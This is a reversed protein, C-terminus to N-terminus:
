DVSKAERLRKPLPRDSLPRHQWCMEHGDKVTRKCQKSPWRLGRGGHGSKTGPIHYPCRHEHAWLTVVPSRYEGGYGGCLGKIKGEADHADRGEGCYGCLTVWDSTDVSM